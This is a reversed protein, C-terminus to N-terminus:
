IRERLWEDRVPYDTDIRSVATRTLAQWLPAGCPESITGNASAGHKHGQVRQSRGQDPQHMRAQAKDSPGM